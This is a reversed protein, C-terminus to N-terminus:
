RSTLTDIEVVGDESAELYLSYGALLSMGILAEEGVQYVLISRIEDGWEMNASYVNFEQVSEDALTANSRYLFIM